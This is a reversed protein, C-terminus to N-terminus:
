LCQVALWGLNYLKSRQNRNEEGRCLAGIKVRQEQRGLFVSLFCKWEIPHICAHGLTTRQTCLTSRDVPAILQMVTFRATILSSYFNTCAFKNVSSSSSCIFVKDQLDLALKRAGWFTTLRAGNHVWVERIKPWCYQILRVNTLNGPINLWVARMICLLWCLLCLKPLCTHLTKKTSIIATMKSKLPLLLSPLSLFKYWPPSCHDIILLPTPTIVWLSRLM